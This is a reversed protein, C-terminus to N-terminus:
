ILTAVGIGIFAGAVTDSLYHSQLYIRSFAVAGAVLYLLSQPQFPLVGAFIFATASHASPFSSTIGAEPNSEPRPRSSLQKIGYSLVWGLLTGFSLVAALEPSHFYILLIFFLTNTPYALASVATMTDRLLPHQRDAILGTIRLDIERVAELM